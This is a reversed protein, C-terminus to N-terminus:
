GDIGNQIFPGFDEVVIDLCDARQRGADAMFCSIVPGERNQAMNLGRSFSFEDFRPDHDPQSLGLRLDLLRDSVEMRCAAVDDRDALIELGISALEKDFRKHGGGLEFGVFGVAVRQADPLHVAAGEDTRAIVSVFDFSEGGM